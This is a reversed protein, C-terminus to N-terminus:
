VTVAASLNIPDSVAMVGFSRLGLAATSLGLRVRPDGGYVNVYPQLQSNIGWTNRDVTGFPLYIRCDITSDIYSMIQNNTDVFQPYLKDPWTNGAVNSGTVVLIWRFTFWFGATTSSVRQDGFRYKNYVFFTSPPHRFQPYTSYAAENAPNFKLFNRGRQLALQYVHGENYWSSRVEGLITYPDDMEFFNMVWNGGQQHDIISGGTGYVTPTNSYGGVKFVGSPDQKIYNRRTDFSIQNSSNRLLIRESNISVREVM